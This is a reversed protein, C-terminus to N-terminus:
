VATFTRRDQLQHAAVLLRPSGSRSTAVECGPESGRSIRSLARSHGGQAINVAGLVPADRV